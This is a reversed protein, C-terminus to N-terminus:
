FRKALGLNVVHRDYDYIPVDSDNDTFIWNGQLAWGELTGRTFRQEFGLAVRTEDDDRSMGPFLPETGDFDYSRYGIRGYLLGDQWAEAIVGAHIEPASYGFREEDADFEEWGAGIQVALSRNRFYRTVDIGAEAEEGDRGSEEDDWYHRDTLAGQLTLETTRGLAWTVGPNLSTFLALNEGGFWIQDGQLAVWARWKGPVVWAPGTRLTLVGLNFDDEDLYGRYYASLDSQWLFSGSTEGSRIRVGPNYVHSIAPNVVWAFDEQPQSSPSIVAGTLPGVDIVDQNPGINANTDYMLGAYISPAWQHRATVRKEDVAIQALFALLTTKVSAPTEPDALVRQAEVRAKEYDQELYYVRALELRARHLSPNGALLAELKERATRLRGSEIASVASEFQAQIDEAASAATGIGACLLFVLASCARGALQRPQM